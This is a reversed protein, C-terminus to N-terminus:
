NVVCAYAAGSEGALRMAGLREDIQRFRRDRWQRCTQQDIGAQRMAQYVRCVKESMYERNTWSLEPMPITLALLEACAEVARADAPSPNKEHLVWGNANMGLQAVEKRFQRNGHFHRLYRAMDRVIPLMLRRGMAPDKRLVTERLVLNFKINVFAATENTPDLKAAAAATRAIRKVRGPPVFEERFTTPYGTANMSILKDVEAQAQRRRVAMENLFDRASAPDVQRLQGALAGWADAIVQDWQAVTGRVGKWPGL